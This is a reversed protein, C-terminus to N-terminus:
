GLLLDSRISSNIQDSFFLVPSFLHWVDINFKDFSSSDLLFPVKCAGHGVGNYLYKSYVPLNDANPKDVYFLM